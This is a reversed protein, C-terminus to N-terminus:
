SHFVANLQTKNFKHLKKQWKVKAGTQILEVTNWILLKQITLSNNHWWWWVRFYIWRQQLTSAPELWILLRNPIILWVRLLSTLSLTVFKFTVTLPSFVVHNLDGLSLTYFWFDLFGFIHGGFRWLLAAPATPSSGPSFLTSFSLSLVHILSTVFVASLGIM